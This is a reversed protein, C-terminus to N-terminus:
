LGVVLECTLGLSKLCRRQSPKKSTESDRIRSSRWVDYGGFKSKVLNRFKASGRNRLKVPEHNWIKAPEHNWLKAPERNWLRALERNWLKAPERNWFKPPKSWGSISLLNVRLLWIRSDNECMVQFSIEHTEAFGVNRTHLTKGSNGLLKNLKQFNMPYFDLKM